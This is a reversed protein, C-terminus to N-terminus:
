SRVEHSRSAPVSAFAGRKTPRLYLGGALVAGLVLLVAVDALHGTAASPVVTASIRARRVNGHADWTVLALEAAGDRLEEGPTTVTARLFGWRDKRLRVKEGWPTDLWAGEISVDDGLTEAERWLSDWGFTPRFVVTTDEGRVLRPASGVLALVPAETDRRVLRTRQEQSGDAHLVDVVLEFAESETGVPIFIRAVFSQAAADYVAARPEQEWPLKYRVARTKPPAALRLELASREVESWLLELGGRALTETQAEVVRSAVNGSTVDTANAPAALGETFATGAIVVWRGFGFVARGYSRM